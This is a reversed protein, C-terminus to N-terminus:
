LIAAPFQLNIQITTPDGAEPITGGSEDNENNCSALGLGLVALSLIMREVNKKM